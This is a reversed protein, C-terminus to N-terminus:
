AGIPARNYFSDWHSGPVVRGGNALINDLEDRCDPHDLRNCFFEIGPICYGIDPVQVAVMPISHETRPITSM